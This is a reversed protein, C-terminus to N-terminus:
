KVKTFINITTSEINELEQLKSILMINCFLLKFLLIRSIQGASTMKVVKQPFPFKVACVEM